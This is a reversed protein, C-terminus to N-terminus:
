PPHLREFMLTSRTTGKTKHKGEIKSQWVQKTKKSKSSPEEYSVMNIDLKPFPDTDVEMKALGKNALKFHDEKLARHVDKRFVICNTTFHIYSNHWKCYKKGKLKDLSQIKHGKKLRIQQDKILHEFIRYAKSIDFDYEVKGDSPGQGKNPKLVLCSYPKGHLIEGAMIKAEEEYSEGNKNSVEHNRPELSAFNKGANVKRAELERSQQMESITPITNTLPNPLTIAVPSTMLSTPIGLSNEGYKLGNKM